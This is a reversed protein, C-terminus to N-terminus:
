TTVVASPLSLSYVTPNNVVKSCPSLTQLRNWQKWSCFLLSFYSYPCPEMTSLTLYPFFVQLHNWQQCSSSSSFAQIISLVLLSSVDLHNGQCSCWPFFVQLYNWQQCSSCSSLAPSPKTTAVATYSHLISIKGDNCCCYLLSLPYSEM